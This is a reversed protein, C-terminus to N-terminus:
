DLGGERAALEAMRKIFNVFISQYAGKAYVVGRWVGTAPANDARGTVNFTVKYLSRLPILSQEVALAGGYTSALEPWALATVNAPEIAGETVDFAARATYDPRFSGAAGTTLRRADSESAYATVMTTKEDVLRFLLDKGRVYRGAQIEPNLDRIVGAFPATIILRKKQEDLAALNKEAAIIEQDLANHANDQPKHGPMTQAARKITKLRALEQGARKYKVELEDSVLAALIAGKAVDQGETVAISQIYSAAPPYVATYLAPHAVAPMVVGGQWPLIMLFALAGAVGLSIRGRRSDKIDPWRKRWIRLEGLIPLMIFWYLEALMLILGLPKFVM